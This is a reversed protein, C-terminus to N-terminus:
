VHSVGLLRGAGELNAPPKVAVFRCGNARAANEDSMGDGVVAVRQPSFGGAEIVRRVETAKVTPHGEITKFYPAWGREEVHARVTERPTASCLHLQVHPFLVTLLASAGPLEPARRVTAESVSGYNAILENALLPCDRDLEAARMKEIMLPIVHHRSGDPDAELVATIIAHHLPTDPFVAFFAERKAKASNVLTGDFDFIVADFPM